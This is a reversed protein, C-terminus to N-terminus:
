KSLKNTPLPNKLKVMEKKLEAIKAELNEIKKILKTKDPDKRSFFASINLEDTYTDKLFLHESPLLRLDISIPKHDDEAFRYDKIKKSHKDFIYPQEASVAVTFAITANNM